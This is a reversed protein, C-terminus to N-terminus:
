LLLLEPAPQARRRVNDHLLVRCPKRGCEPALPLRWQEDVFGLDYTYETSGNPSLPSPSYTQTDTLVGVIAYGENFEGALDYQFPVVVENDTNIYGWKGDKKVAALGNIFASADEYQPTITETFTMAGPVTGADAALAAPTALGVCLALALALSLTRKKMTNM